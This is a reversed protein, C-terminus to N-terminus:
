RRTALDVLLARHDSLEFERATSAHVPALVVTPEGLPTAAVFRHAGWRTRRSPPRAKHSNCARVHQRHASAEGRQLHVRRKEGIV